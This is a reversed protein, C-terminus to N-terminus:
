AIVRFKGGTTVRASGNTLIRAGIAVYFDTETVSATNSYSSYGAGKKYRVKYYYSQPTLGGDAYTDTGIPVDDIETFTVGNTSRYIRIDDYDATGNNTWNLTVQSDTDITVTLGSPFRTTWSSGGSRKHLGFGLGLGPAM